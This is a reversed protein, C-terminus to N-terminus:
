VQIKQGFPLAAGSKHPLKAPGGPTPLISYYMHPTSFIIILLNTCTLFIFVVIHYKYRRRMVM